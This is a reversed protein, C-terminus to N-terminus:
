ANRMKGEAATLPGQTVDLLSPFLVRTRCLAPDQMLFAMVFMLLFVSSAQEDASPQAYERAHHAYRTDAIDDFEMLRLFASDEM